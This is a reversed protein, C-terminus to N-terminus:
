INFDRDMCIIYIYVSEDEGFLYNEQHARIRTRVIGGTTFYAIENMKERQFTYIEALMKPLFILM